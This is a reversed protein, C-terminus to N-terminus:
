SYCRSISLEVFFISFVYCKNGKYIQDTKLHYNEKQLNYEIDTIDVKASGSCFICRYGSRFNNVSVVYTHHNPCTVKLKSKTNIYEQNPAITYGEKLFDSNIQGFTLQVNNACIGCRCGNVWEHWTFDIEHGQPCVSKLKTKNNIYQQNPKLSYQENELTLQVEEISHKACGACVACRYGTNWKSATFDRMHGRPCIYKLPSMSNIYIQNPLLSYNEQKLKNEIINLTLKKPM